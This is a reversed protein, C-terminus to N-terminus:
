DSSRNAPTLGAPDSMTIGTATPPGRFVCLVPFAAERMTLDCRSRRFVDHDFIYSMGNEDRTKRNIVCNIGFRFKPALM